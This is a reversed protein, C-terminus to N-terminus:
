AATASPGTGGTPREASVADLGDLVESV